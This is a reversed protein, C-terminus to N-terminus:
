DDFEGPAARVDTEFYLRKSEYEIHVTTSYTAYTKSPWPTGSSVGGVNSYSRNTVLSYQGTILDNGSSDRSNNFLLDFDDTAIDRVTRLPRCSSGNMTAGSVDITIRNRDDYTASCTGQLTDGTSYVKVVPEGSDEFIYVRHWESSPDASDTFNVYFVEAPENPGVNSSDASELSATADITLNRVYRTNEAVTWNREGSPSSDSTFNGDSNRYIRTGESQQKLTVNTVVSDMAQERGSINSYNWIAWRVNERLAAYSSNNNYNVVTITEGVSTQTAARYRTADKGGSIDSGRTAINETYIATNLILALAVLMVAVGFAAVLLMQGRSRARRAADNVDAM